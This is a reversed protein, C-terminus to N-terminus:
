VEGVGELIFPIDQWDGWWGEGQPGQRVRYQLRFNHDDVGKFWRFEITPM